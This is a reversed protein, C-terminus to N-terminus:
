LREVILAPPIVADDGISYADRIIALAADLSQTENVLVTCLREGAEVRDGMKKHLIVGVAPDIRSDVRTRGAGLLM